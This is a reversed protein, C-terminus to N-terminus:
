FSRYYRLGVANMGPNRPGTDANSVHRLAVAVASVLDIRYGLALTSRFELDNGLDFGEGAARYLGPMLSADVFWHSGPSWVAAPGLGAWLNGRADATVGVGLRFAFPGAQAFPRAWVELGLAPADESGGSSYDNHFGEIVLDQAAVPAAMGWALAVALAAVPCARM